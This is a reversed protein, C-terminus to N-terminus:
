PATQSCVVAGSCIAVYILVRAVVRHKERRLGLGGADIDLQMHVGAQEVGELQESEHGLGSFCDGLAPLEAPRM